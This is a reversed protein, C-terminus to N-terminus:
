GHNESGQRRAQAEMKEVEAFRTLMEYKPAEIDKFQGTMYAWALLCLFGATVFGYIIIPDAAFDSMEESKLTRLFAFLKGCFVLGGFVCGVFFALHIAKGRKSDRPIRITM